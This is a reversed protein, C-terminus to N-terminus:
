SQRSFGRSEQLGLSRNVRPHGPTTNSCHGEDTKTMRWLSQDEPHLAELTDSWQDKRWEQLQLTVSRQVRNVEAKLAPDRTLQWQRRLRNKLRIEDQIRAPIPPRPDARTRSKPTSVELAGSIASYLFERCV